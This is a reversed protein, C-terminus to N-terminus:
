NIMLQCDSKPAGQLSRSLKCTSCIKSKCCDSWWCAGVQAKLFKCHINRLKHCQHSKMYVVYTLWGGRRTCCVAIKRSSLNLSRKWSTHQKCQRKM